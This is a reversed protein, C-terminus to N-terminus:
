KEKPVLLVGECRAGKTSRGPNRTKRTSAPAQRIPMARAPKRGFANMGKPYPARGARVLLSKGWLLAM